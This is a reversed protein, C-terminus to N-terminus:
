GKKGVSLDVDAHGVRVETAGAIAGVTVLLILGFWFLPNDPSWLPERMSEPHFVGPGFAADVGTGERLFGVSDPARQATYGFQGWANQSGFALPPGGRAM